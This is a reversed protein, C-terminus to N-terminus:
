DFMTIFSFYFKGNKPASGTTLLNRSNPSCFSVNVLIHWSNGPYLQNSSFIRLDTVFSWGVDDEVDVVVVVDEFSFSPTSTVLLLECDLVVVLVSSAFELWSYTYQKGVMISLHSQRRDITAFEDTYYLIQVGLINFFHMNM